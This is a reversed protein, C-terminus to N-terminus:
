TTRSPKRRNPSLELGAGKLLNDSVIVGHPNRKWCGTCIRGSTDRSGPMPLEHTSKTLLMTKLFQVSNKAIAAKVEDNTGSRTEIYVSAPLSVLSSDVELQQRSLAITKGYNEQDWQRGGNRRLYLWKQSSTLNTSLPTPMGPLTKIVVQFAFKLKSMTPQGWWELSGEVRQTELILERVPVQFLKTFPIIVKTNRM